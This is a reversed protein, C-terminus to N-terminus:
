SSSDLSLLQSVPCMWVIDGISCDDHLIRHLEEQAHASHGDKLIPASTPEEGFFVIALAEGNADCTSVLVQSVIRRLRRTLAVTRM